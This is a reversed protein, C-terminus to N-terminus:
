KGDAARLQHAQPEAARARGPVALFQRVLARLDDPTMGAAEAALVADIEHQLWVSCRRGRRVPPPFVGAGIARYVVARSCGRRECVQPLRLFSVSLPAGATSNM